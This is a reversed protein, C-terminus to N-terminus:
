RQPCIPPRRQLASAVSARKQAATAPPRHPSAAAPWCGRGARCPYAPPHPPPRPFGNLAPGVKLPRGAHGPFGAAMAPPPPPPPPLLPLLLLLLLQPRLPAAPKMCFFPSAAAISLPAASTRPAHPHRPRPNPPLEGLSRNPFPSSYYGRGGLKNRHRQEALLVMCYRTSVPTMVHERNMEAQIRESSGVARSSETLACTGVQLPPCSGWLLPSFSLGRSGM